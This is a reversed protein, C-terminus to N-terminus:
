KSNRKIKQQLIKIRNELIRIRNISFQKLDKIKNIESFMKSNSIHQTQFSKHELFPKIKEYFKTKYWENVASLFKEINSRIILKGVSNQSGCSITYNSIDLQGVPLKDYMLIFITLGPFKVFLEDHINKLAFMQVNLSKICETGIIFRFTRNPRRDDESLLSDKIELPIYRFNTLVLNHLHTSLWLEFFDPKANLRSLMDSITMRNIIQWDAPFSEVHSKTRQKMIQGHTPSKKM